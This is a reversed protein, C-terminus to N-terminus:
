KPDLALWLRIPGGYGQLAVLPLLVGQVRGDRIARYATDTEGLGLRMADQVPFARIETGQLTDLSAMWARPDAASERSMAPERWVPALALFLLAARALLALARGQSHAGAQPANPLTQQWDLAQAVAN